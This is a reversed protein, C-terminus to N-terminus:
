YGPTDRIRGGDEALWADSMDDANCNDSACACYVGKEPVGNLVTDFRWCGERRIKFVDYGFLQEYVHDCERFVKGPRSDLFDIILDTRTKLRKIKPCESTKFQVCYRLNAGAADRCTTVTGPDNAKRSQRNSSQCTRASVPINFFLFPM